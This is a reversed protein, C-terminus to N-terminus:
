RNTTDYLDEMADPAAQVAAHIEAEREQCAMVVRSLEAVRRSLRDIQRIAVMMAPTADGDAVAAQLIAHDACEAALERVDVPTLHISCGM